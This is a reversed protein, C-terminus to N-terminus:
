DSPPPEPLEARAVREDQWIIESLEGIARPEHLKRITGDTVIRESERFRRGAETRRIEATNSRWKRNDWQPDGVGLVVELITRNQPSELRAIADQLYSRLAIAYADESDDKGIHARVCDLGLLSRGRELIWWKKLANTCLVALVEEIEERQPTEPLRRVAMTPSSVVLCQWTMANASQRQRAIAAM